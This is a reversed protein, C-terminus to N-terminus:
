RPSRPSSRTGRRRPRGQGQRLGPRVRGQVSGVAGQLAEAADPRSREVAGPAPAPPQRSGPTEAYDLFEKATQILAEAKPVNSWRLWDEAERLESQKIVLKGRAARYREAIADRQAAPVKGIQEFAKGAQQLLRDIARGDSSASSATALQEMDACMAELSAAIAAGREAEEKQRAEREAAQAARRADEEARQKEREERRAMAEADDIVPAPEPTAAPKPGAAAREAAARDRERQAEREVARLEDSTRAQQEYIDKRKWFREIAKAFREDGDDAGGLKMWAVEAASIQESVKAFDFTEAVAEVERLLQAKEARRRKVEDPVSPTKKLREAAAIETVIKRAKQRVAKNKAKQAVNELRDVDDLKEVAALGVEKATTDIALARLVDGDDIRAVAATRLDQAAESKALEALARPDRLEGFARKRLAPLSARVVVDVLAHQDGIKIIGSLANGAADADSSCARSTWLEAARHGALDRLSRETEAAALEALVEATSIKEIALRRVGIDRDTRAIQELIAADDDTLARVAETRVRVDSHRYKPRFLDAIGM